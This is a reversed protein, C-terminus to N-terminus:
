QHLPVLRAREAPASEQGTAKGKMGSPGLTDPLCKQVGGLKQAAVLLSKWCEDRTAFADLPHWKIPDTLTSSWLVWTCDASAPTAVVLLSLLIMQVTMLLCGGHISSRLLNLLSRLAAVLARV